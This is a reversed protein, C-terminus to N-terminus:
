GRLHGFYRTNMPQPRGDLRAQVVGRLAPDVLPEFSAPEDIGLRPIVVRGGYVPSRLTRSFTSRSIPNGRLTRLGADNLDRRITEQEEGAAVARRARQARVDNDFQAFAAFVNEM